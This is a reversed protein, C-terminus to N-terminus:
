NILYAPIFGNIHFENNQLHKDQTQDFITNLRKPTNLKIHLKSRLSYYINPFSKNNNRYCFSNRLFTSFPKCFQKKPKTQLFSKM